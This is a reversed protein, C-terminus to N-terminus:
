QGAAQMFAPDFAITHYAIKGNEVVYTNSGFPFKAAPNEARWLIYVVDGAPTIAYTDWFAGPKSFDDVFSQMLPRIKDVGQFPPQGPLIVVADDAYEAMMGDLNRADWATLFDRVTRESESMEAASPRVLGGAFIVALAAAAGVRTLTKM